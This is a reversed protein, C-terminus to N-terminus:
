PFVSQVEKLFAEGEEFAFDKGPPRNDWGSKHSPNEPVSSVRITETGLYPM